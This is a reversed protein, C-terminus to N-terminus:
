QLVARVPVGPYFRALANMFHLLLASDPGGSVAVGVRQGARFFEKRRMELSWRAYLDLQRRM